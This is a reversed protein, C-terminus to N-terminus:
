AGAEKRGNGGEDAKLAIGLINAKREVEAKSVYCRLNSSFEYTGEAPPIGAEGKEKEAKDRLIQAVEADFSDMELFSCYASYLFSAEQRCKKIGDHQENLRGMVGLLASLEEAGMKIGNQMTLEMIVQHRCLCFGQEIGEARKRHPVEREFYLLNGALHMLAGTLLLDWNIARKERFSYLNNACDIYRMALYFAMDTVAATAHLMGGLPSAQRIHTAPMTRMLAINEESFYAELLQRYAPAERGVYGKYKGIKELYGDLREAGIHPMMAVLEGADLQKLEIDKVKVRDPVLGPLGPEHLGSIIVVKGRLEQLQEYSFLNSRLHGHRRCGSDSLVLEYSGTSKKQFGELICEVGKFPAGGAIDRLCMKEDM